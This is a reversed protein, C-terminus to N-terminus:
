RCHYKDKYSRTHPSNSVGNWVSYIQARQSTAIVMEESSIKWYHPRERLLRHFIKWRNEDTIWRGDQISTHGQMRQPLLQLTKASTGRVVIISGEQNRQIQDSMKPQNALLPCVNRYHPGGCKFCKVKKKQVAHVDHSTGMNANDMKLATFNECEAVLDEITLAADEAQTDLRRLMRLRVERLSPDQLGAVFYDSTLAPCSIRLCEYRRRILTKKSAFLKQLKRVTTAFDIEHPQLPLVDDAYKRYRQRSAEIIHGYRRYWYDFTYGSEEDYVFKEVDKNLQDYLLKQNDVMGDKTPALSAFLMKMEEHQFQLQQLMTQLVVELQAPHASATGDGSSKPMNCVLQESTKLPQQRSDQLDKTSTRIAVQQIRVPLWDLRKNFWLRIISGYESLSRGKSRARMQNAHRRWLQGEETLVDYLVRGFRSKVHAMIWAQTWPSLRSDLSTRWDQVIKEHETTVTSNSKWKQMEQDKEGETTEKLLTLTTRIQRGLFLEAPSLQGPTSTCPTRRYCEIDSIASRLACSWNVLRNSRYITGREHMRVFAETVARVMKPDMMFCARDWDVSAGMKRLQDYIVGGKENKWKWVEQLFDDRGLDHRTLGKERQLKKEVVVQTAIGAHDCGPNFLTTRGKMRHWRTLTDEVTTALAHGIHLTGTVNPPPICITFTGKPNLMTANQRGYEPKFFGEKEWWAYWDSEVYGPDYVNLLGASVYTKMKPNVQLRNHPPRSEM